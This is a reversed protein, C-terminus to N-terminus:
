KQPAPDPSFVMWTRAGDIYPEWAPFGTASPAGSKIFSNLYETFALSADDLVLRYHGGHPRSKVRGALIPRAFSGFDSILRALHSIKLKDPQRASGIVIAARVYNHAAKLRELPYAPSRLITGRM